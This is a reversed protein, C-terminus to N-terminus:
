QGMWTLVSDWRTKASAEWTASDGTFIAMSAVAKGRPGSVMWTLSDVGQTAEAATVNGNALLYDIGAQKVQELTM